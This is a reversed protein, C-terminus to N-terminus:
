AGKKAVGSNLHAPSTAMYHECIATQL